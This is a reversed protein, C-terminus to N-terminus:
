ILRRLFEVAEEQSRVRGGAEAERLSSLLAGIKPGPELGFERMVEHGNLLLFPKSEGPTEFGGTLIDGIMRSYALWEESELLPGRAALYDALNLYLTDVAADGVDRYYRFLARGTPLERRSSLQAPRLHHRVLAEVHAVTRRSCRLRRLIGAAQAAGTSHHGIFRIRGSAEVTRSAPKGLDHLLAGLKLLAARTQGDGIETAFHADLEPRWPASSLVPDSRRAAGDLLRGAARVTEVSHRFVDWRHEPPQTVGKAAALEPIVVDLLGLADMDDVGDAAGPLAFLALLEDRVREASVRRILGADTQIGARTGDELILGLELSLRVARMMRVPDDRLSAPGVARLIGAELDSRGGLTDVLSREYDRRLWAELPVAMANVTFDRRELDIHLDGGGMLDVWEPDGPIPNRPVLRFHGRCADMVVPTADLRRALERVAPEAAGQLHIDIDAGAGPSGRNAALLRDRVAGGVVHARLGVACIADALQQVFRPMDQMM